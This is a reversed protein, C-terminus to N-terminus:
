NCNLISDRKEIPLNEMRLRTRACMKLRFVSQEM